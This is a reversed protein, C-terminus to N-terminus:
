IRCIVTRISGGQYFGLRRLSSVAPIDVSWRGDEDQEFDVAFVYTKKVRM